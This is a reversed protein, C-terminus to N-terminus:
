LTQSLEENALARNDIKLLWFLIYATHMNM